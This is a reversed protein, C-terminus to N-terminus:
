HDGIAKENLVDWIRMVTEPDYVPKGNFEPGGSKAINRLWGRFDDVQELVENALAYRLVTDVDYAHFVAIPKSQEKPAIVDQGKQLTKMTSNWVVHPVYVGDPLVASQWLKKKKMNTIKTWLKEEM